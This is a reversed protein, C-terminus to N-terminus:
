TKKRKKKVSLGTTEIIIKKTKSGYFSSSYLRDVLVSAIKASVWDRERVPTGLLPNSSHIQLIYQGREAGISM